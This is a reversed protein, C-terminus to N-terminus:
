KKLVSGQFKITKILDEAKSVVQKPLPVYHLPAAYKQGDHTMWWLLDVLAGAKADRKKGYDQQQYVLLWTFGSIPYGAPHPTNVLSVRTDAPIKSSAAAAISGESPLVFNGKQNQLSAYSMKNQIAYILEVYGISGPTIKLIGAVGENGKAGIGIPWSVSTGSGVKQKWAASVLSLYSTFIASTGSGDSRHVVIIEQNPLKVGPNIKQIRADGWKRIKGSFIDALVDPTLKLSAVGALNYSIAVGGLAIPIHLLKGSKIAALSADDLFSDTAGFDVTMNTIQRIGGGSGISQYNVKVHKSKFYESFM